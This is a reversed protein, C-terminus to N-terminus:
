DRDRDNRVTSCCCCCCRAITMFILCPFLVCPHVKKSFTIALRGREVGKSRIGKRQYARFRAFVSRKGIRQDKKIEISSLFLSFPFIPEATTGCLLRRGLDSM